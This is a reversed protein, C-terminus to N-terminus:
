RSLRWLVFGGVAAAGLAFGWPFPADSEAVPQGRGARFGNDVQIGLSVALSNLLGGAAGAAAGAAPNERAAEQGATTAIAGAASVGIGLAAKVSDMFSTESQAIEGLGSLSSAARVVDDPFFGTMLPNLMQTNMVPFSLIAAEPTANSMPTGSAVAIRQAKRMSVAEPEPIDRIAEMTKRAAEELVDAKEGDRAAREILVDKSRADRMNAASQMAAQAGDRAQSALLMYVARNKEAEASVRQHFAERGFLTRRLAMNGAGAEDGAQTKQAVLKSARAAKGMARGSGFAFRHARDMAQKAATKTQAAKSRVENLASGDALGARLSDITAM